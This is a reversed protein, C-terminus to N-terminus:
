CHRVKRWDNSLTMATVDIGPAVDSLMSELTNKATKAIWRCIAILPASYPQKHRQEEFRLARYIAPISILPSVTVPSPNEVFEELLKRSSITMMQLVSDDAAIQVGLGM